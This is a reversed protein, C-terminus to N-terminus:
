SQAEEPTPLVARWRPDCKMFTRCAAAEPSEPHLEVLWHSVLEFADIELGLYHYEGSAERIRVVVVIEDDPSYADGEWDVLVPVGDGAAPHTKDM